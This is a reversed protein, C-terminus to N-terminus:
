LHGVEYCGFLIAQSWSVRFSVLEFQRQQALTLGKSPHIEEGDSPEHDEMMTFYKSLNDVVASLYDPLGTLTGTPPQTATCDM